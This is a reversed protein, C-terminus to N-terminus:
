REYWLRLGPLKPSCAEHSHHHQHRREDHFNEVELSCEVETYAVTKCEPAGDVHLPVPWNTTLPLNPNLCSILNQHRIGWCIDSDRAETTRQHKLMATTWSIARIVFKLLLRAVLPFQERPVAIGSSMIDHAMTRIRNRFWSYAWKEM